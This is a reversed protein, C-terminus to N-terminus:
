RTGQLTGAEKTDNTSINTDNNAGRCCCGCLGSVFRLNLLEPESEKKGDLRDIPSAPRLFWVRRPRFTIPPIGDEGSYIDPRNATLFASGILIGYSVKDVLYLTERKRGLNRRRVRPLRRLVREGIPCTTNRPAPSPIVAATRLLYIGGQEAKGPRLLLAAFVNPSTSCNTLHGDKM